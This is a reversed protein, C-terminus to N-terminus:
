LKKESMPMCVQIGARGIEEEVVRSLAHGLHRQLLRLRRFRRGRPIRQQQVPLVPFFYKTKGKNERLIKKFGSTCM